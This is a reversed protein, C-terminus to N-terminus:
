DSDLYYSDPDDWPGPERERPPQEPRGRKGMFRDVNKWDATPVVPSGLLGRRLLLAPSWRLDHHRAALARLSARRRDADPTEVARGV